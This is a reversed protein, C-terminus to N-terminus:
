RPEPSQDEPKIKSFHERQEPTLEKDIESLAKALVVKAKIAVDQRITLMEEVATDVHVEFKKRQAEDPHLKDLQRMANKKWFVPNDKRKAIAKTAVAGLLFGATMSVLVLVTILCGAKTRSSTNM